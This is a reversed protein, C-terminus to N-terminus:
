RRLRLRLGVSFVRLRDDIQEEGSGEANGKIKMVDFEGYIAFKSAVWVELGGGFTFGWGKTRYAFTQTGADITETSTTTAQHYDLGGHGFARIRGSGAGAKGLITWVDPDLESRFNFGDGGAAKAKSPRLYTAEAGLYRTFWYTAGGSFSVAPSKDSCASANGCALSFADSFKSSGVGGFLVLGTPLLRAPGANEVHPRPPTYRGKILLLAPTPGGVDIVLTNVPRVLFLGGIERRECGVAPPPGQRSREVVLVRDLKACVDVFVNADMETKGAPLKFPVSAAGGAGAVATGAVAADVVVEVNTGAPANRVMVTQAAAGSSGLTVIAAAIVLRRWPNMM